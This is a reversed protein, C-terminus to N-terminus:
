SQWLRNGVGMRLSLTLVSQRAISRPCCTCENPATTSQNWSLGQADMPARCLM